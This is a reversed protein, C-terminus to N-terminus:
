EHHLYRPLPFGANNKGQDPPKLYWVGRFFREISVVIDIFFIRMPKKGRINNIEQLLSLSNGGTVSLPLPVKPAFTSPTAQAGLPNPGKGALLISSALIAPVLSVM